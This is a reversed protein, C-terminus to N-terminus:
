EESGDTEHLFAAIENMIRCDDSDCILKQPQKLDLSFVGMISKPDIMRRGSGMEFNADMKELIRIFAKVQDANQFKVVMQQM